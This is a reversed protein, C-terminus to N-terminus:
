QENRWQRRSAALEERVCQRVRETIDVVLRHDRRDPDFAPDRTMESITDRVWRGIIRGRQEAGLEEEIIQRIEALLDRNRAVAQGARIFAWGGIAAALVAGCAAIIAAVLTGSAAAAYFAM